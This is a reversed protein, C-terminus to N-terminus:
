VCLPVCVCKVAPLYKFQKIQAATLNSFIRRSALTMLESELHALANERSFSQKLAISQRQLGLGDNTM